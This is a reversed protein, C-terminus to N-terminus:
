GRDGPEAVGEPAARVEAAVVGKPGQGLRAQLAQGDSLDTLGARRLTEM